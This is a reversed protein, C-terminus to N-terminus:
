QIKDKDEKKLHEKKQLEKKLLVRIKLHVKHHCLGVM